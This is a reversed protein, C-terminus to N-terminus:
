LTHVDFLFVTEPSTMFVAELSKFFAELKVILWYLWSYSDHPRVLLAPMAEMQYPLKALSFALFTDDLSHYRTYAMAVVLDSLVQPGIFFHQGALYAPYVPWPVDDESTAYKNLRPDVHPRIVRYNRLLQGSYLTPLRDPDISRLYAEVREPYFLYDDDIFFFALTQQRCFSSAWRFMTSMKLSLNLYTDLYDGLIIDGYRDAEAALRELAEDARGEWTKLAEGAREPLLIDFGNMHLLAGGSPRPLGLSFVMGIKLDTLNDLNLYHQRIRARDEFNYVASKWVVILDFQRRPPTKPPCVFRSTRLLKVNVNNIPPMNVPWGASINRVYPTANIAATYMDYQELKDDDELEYWQRLLSWGDIAHQLRSKRHRLEDLRLDLKTPVVGTGSIAVCLTLDYTSDNPCILDEVRRPPWRWVARPQQQHPLLSCRCSSATGDVDYSIKRNNNRVDSAPSFTQSPQPFCLIFASIVAYVGVVLLILRLKLRMIFAAAPRQPRQAFWRQRKM